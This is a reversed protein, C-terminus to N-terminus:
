KRLRLRPFFMGVENQYKKYDKFTKALLAEEQKARYYMFPVFVFTNAIFAIYNPHVLCAAYFMWIISAYLPHRVIGYVGERVLTQSKYITVQNAWNKGLSIRGLINVACGMVMLIVGVVITINWADQRIAIEGIKLKIILYFAFFFSTMTGTAVISDKRSKIDKNKAESFNIIVATFLALVCLGIIADAIQLMM